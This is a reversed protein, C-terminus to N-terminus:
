RCDVEFVICGVWKCGVLKCEVLRYGVSTGEVWLEVVLDISIEVVM